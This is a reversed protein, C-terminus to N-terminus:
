QHNACGKPDSSSRQWIIFGSCVNRLAVIYPTRQINCVIVNTLPNFGGWDNQNHTRMMRYVDFQYDPMLDEACLGEAKTLGLKMCRVM